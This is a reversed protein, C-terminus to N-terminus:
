ASDRGGECIPFSLSPADLVQRAQPERCSPRQSELTLIPLQGAKAPFGCSLSPNLLPGAVLVQHGRAAAEKSPPRLCTGQASLAEPGMQSTDSPASPRQLGTQSVLTSEPDADNM